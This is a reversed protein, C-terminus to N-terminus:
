GPGADPATSDPGAVERPALLAQQIARRIADKQPILLAAGGVGRFDTVLPPQIPLTSVASLSSFRLTRDRIAFPVQRQRANRAIANDAHRTRVYKLATAGNMLQPGPAFFVREIGYDETPYEDDKVPRPVDIAVGVLANVLDRVGRLNVM